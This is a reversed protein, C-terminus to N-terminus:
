VVTLLSFLYCFLYYLNILHGLIIHLNVVAFRKQIIYMWVIFKLKMKLNDLKTATFLTYSKFTIYVKIVDVIYFFLPCDLWCIHVYNTLM